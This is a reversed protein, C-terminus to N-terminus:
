TSNSITITGNDSVDVAPVNLYDVQGGIKLGSNTKINGDVELNTGIEVENNTSDHNIVTKIDETWEDTAGGGSGGVIRRIENIDCYEKILKPQLLEDFTIIRVDQYQTYAIFVRVSDTFILIGNMPPKDYFVGLILKKIGKDADTIIDEAGYLFRREPNQSSNLVGKM